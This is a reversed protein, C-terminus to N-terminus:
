SQTYSGSNGSSSSIGMARLTQVGAIGDPTLGNKEQFWKVAAQTEKGYVGDVQGSYYGWNKLKTQIQRVEEGSSGYKSLTEVSEPVTNMIFSVTLAVALMAACVTLILGKNKRILNKM